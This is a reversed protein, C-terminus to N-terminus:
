RGTSGYGGINRTTESVKEVELFAMKPVEVLRLQAIREGKGISYSRGYEIGTARGEEDIVLDKIKPEINELSIGIEGRYDLTTLQYANLKNNQLKIENYNLSYRGM